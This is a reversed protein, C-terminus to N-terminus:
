STERATEDDGGTTESPEANANRRRERAAADELTETELLAELKREFQEDTLDGEAYRRRLTDLPDDTSASAPPRDESADAATSEDRLLLGVLPVVVAFGVAFVVWFWDYGLFLATLGVGLVVLSALGAPPARSRLRPRPPRM